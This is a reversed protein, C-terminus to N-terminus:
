GEEREEELSLEELPRQSIPVVVSLKISDENEHLVILYNIGRLRFQAYRSVAELEKRIIYIADRSVRPRGRLKRKEEGGGGEIGGISGSIITM